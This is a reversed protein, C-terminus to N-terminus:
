LDTGDQVATLEIRDNGAYVFRGDERIYAAAQNEARSRLPTNQALLCWHAGITVLEFFWLLRILM